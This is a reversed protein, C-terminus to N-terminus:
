LNPPKVAKEPHRLWEELHASALLGYQWASKPTEQAAKQLRGTKAYRRVSADWSAALLVDPSTPSFEVSSIGDEPPDALNLLPQPAVLNAM